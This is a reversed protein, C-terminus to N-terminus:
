GQEGPMHGELWSIQAEADRRLEAIRAEVAAPVEHHSAAAAADRVRAEETLCDSLLSATGDPSLASKIRTAAKKLLEREQEPWNPGGYQEALFAALMESARRRSRALDELKRQLTPEACAHAASEHIDAAELCAVALGNIAIETEGRLINMAM